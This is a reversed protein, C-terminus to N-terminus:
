KQNRWCKRCVSKYSVDGTEIAVSTESEDRVGNIYRIHAVAKGDCGDMECLTEIHEFEDALAFLHKSGEFLNGLVDTRLGFCFVYIDRSDAIDCLFLIDERNLFQVEDVFLCKFDLKLLESKLDQFYYTPEEVTLIRSKTVGWGIFKGERDDLCPKIIIPKKKRRKYTDFMALMKTTKGSGMAGYFFKVRGM